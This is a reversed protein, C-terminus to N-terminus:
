NFSESKPEYNERNQALFFKRGTIKRRRIRAMFNYVSRSRPTTPSNPSVHNSIINTDNPTGCAGSEQPEPASAEPVPSPTLPPEELRSNLTFYDTKMDIALFLNIYVKVPRDLTLTNLVDKSLPPDSNSRQRQYIPKENPTSDTKTAM